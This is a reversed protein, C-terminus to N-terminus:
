ENNGGVDSGLNCTYKWQIVDGDSVEYESCGYNPYTDNVSYMWGSNEGCDFEYIQHIGEVYYSGYVPTYRSAMHIKNEDCVKKLIDFVTEGPTYTVEEEKLVWGDEPVFEEKAPDLKDKNELITTCEISITCTHTEKKQEGGESSMTYLSPKGQEQRMQSVLAYFAQETAMLDEDEDMVHRFAGDETQFQLLRDKLTHGDKVFREDAIPINLEGLAVMVQSISESSEADYSVYGGNSDQKESLISLGDEIAQTVDSREQYKALAQLVMATIDVEAESGGFSWGGDSLQASLIYDVYMDRTAQTGDSVIEPIEYNGSDLALLAFVPGNIGQFTTKDYDALPELLNFGGVDTADKGMATWALIVRSYETYKKEHLIGANEAVYSAVNEAYTTFYEEPVDLESRALGLIEWEGGVTGYTPEPVKEMMWQATEDLVDTQDSSCGTLTATLVFVLALLTYLWKRKTRM